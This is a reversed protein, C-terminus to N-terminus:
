ATSWCWRWLSARCTLPPPAPAPHHQRSPYSCSAPATACNGSSAGWWTCARGVQQKVGLLSVVSPHQVARLLRLERRVHTPLVGEEQLFMHKLAVLGGTARHRARHVQVPLLPRSTRVTALTALSPRARCPRFMRRAWRQFPATVWKM